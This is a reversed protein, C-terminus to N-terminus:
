KKTTKKAPAKKKPTEKVVEAWGKTLCYKIKAEDVQFSEGVQRTVGEILRSKGVLKVTIVM